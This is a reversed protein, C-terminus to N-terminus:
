WTNRIISIVSIIVHTAAHM